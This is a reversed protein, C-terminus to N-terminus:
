TAKNQAMRGFTKAEKIVNCNVLSNARKRGQVNTGCEGCKWCGVEGTGGDSSDQEPEVRPCGEWKFRSTALHEKLNKHGRRETVSFCGNPFLEKLEPDEQVIKEHKKICARINLFEPDYSTSFYYTRKGNQKQVMKIQNLHKAERLRPQESLILILIIQLTGM